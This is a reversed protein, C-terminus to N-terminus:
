AAQEMPQPQTLEITAKTLAECAATLKPYRPDGAVVFAQAIVETHLAAIDPLTPNAM